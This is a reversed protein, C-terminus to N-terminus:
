RASATPSPAAPWRSSAASSSGNIRYRAVGAIEYSFDVEHERAFEALKADDNLLAKLAGETDEASLPQASADTTLEGNVRYLPASGVKLHLDSGEKAVLERLAPMVDFMGKQDAARGPPKFAARCRPRRGDARSGWSTCIGGLPCIGAASQCIGGQRVSRGARSPRIAGSSRM